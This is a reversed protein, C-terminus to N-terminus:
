PVTVTLTLSTKGSVQLFAGSFDEYMAVSWELAEWLVSGTINIVVVEEGWPLVTIVDNLAISGPFLKWSSNLTGYM